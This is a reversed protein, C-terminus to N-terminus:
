RRLVSLAPRPSGGSRRQRRRGGGRWGGCWRRPCRRWSRRSSFRMSDFLEQSPTPSESRLVSTTTWCEHPQRQSSRTTPTCPERRRRGRGGVATTATRPWNRGQRQCQPCLLDGGQGVPVFLASGCAECLTDRYDAPRRDRREMEAAWMRDVDTWSISSGLSPSCDAAGIDRLENVESQPDLPSGGSRDHLTSM